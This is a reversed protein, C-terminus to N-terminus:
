ARRERVAALVEDLGCFGGPEHGQPATRAQIKGVPRFRDDGTGNLRIHGRSSVSGKSCPGSESMTQVQGSVRLRQRRREYRHSGGLLVLLHAQAASTSM